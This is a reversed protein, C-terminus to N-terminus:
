ARPRLATECQGGAIDAFLGAGERLAPYLAPDAPRKRSCESSLLRVSRVSRAWAMPRRLQINRPLSLPPRVRDQETEEGARVQVVQFDLRVQSVHQAAQRGDRVGHFEAVEQRLAPGLRM